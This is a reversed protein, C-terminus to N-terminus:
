GTNPLESGRKTLDEKNRAMMKNLGSTLARRTQLVSAPAGAIFPNALVMFASFLYSDDVIRNTLEANLYLNSIGQYFVGPVQVVDTM